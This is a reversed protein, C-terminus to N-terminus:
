RWVEEAIPIGRFRSEWDEYQVVVTDGTVPDLGARIRLSDPWRAPYPSRLYWAPLTLSSTDVDGIAVVQAPTWLLVDPAERDESPDAATLSGSFCVFLLLLYATLKIM